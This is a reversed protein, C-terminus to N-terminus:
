RYIGFNRNFGMPLRKQWFLNHKRLVVFSDEGRM